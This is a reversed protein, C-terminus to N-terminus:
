DIAGIERLLDDSPHELVGEKLMNEAECLNAEAFSTINQVVKDETLPGRVKAPVGIAMHYDPVVTGETVVAGAGVLANNGIQAGDMVIAGMGVLANDGITCGHLIAGHGVTSHEGIILPHGHSEHLVCNEQVNSEPGIVIRDSDARLQAGSLIAARYGVKVNGVIRCDRSLYCAPDAEINGRYGLCTWNAEYDERYGDPITYTDKRTFM